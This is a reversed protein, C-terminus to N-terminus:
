ALSLGHRTASRQPIDTSRIPRFAQSIDPYAAVIIERYVSRLEDGSFWGKLYSCGAIDKLMTLTFRRYGGPTRLPVVVTGDPRVFQEHRLRQDLWSFSRGLMAAADQASYSPEDSLTIVPTTHASTM